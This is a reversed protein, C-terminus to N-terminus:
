PLRLFIFGESSRTIAAFDSATAHRFTKFCFVITRENSRVPSDSAGSPDSSANFDKYTDPYKTKVFDVLREKITDFDRATYDIQRIVKDRKSITM